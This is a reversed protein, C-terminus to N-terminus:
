FILQLLKHTIMGLYFQDQPIQGSMVWTIFCLVDLILVSIVVWQIVYLIQKM